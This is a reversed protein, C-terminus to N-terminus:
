RNSDLILWSLPYGPLLPFGFLLTSKTYNHDQCPTHSISTVFQWMIINSSHALIFGLFSVAQQRLPTETDCQRPSGHDGPPYSCDVFDTGVVYNYHATHTLTTARLSCTGSPTVVSVDDRGRECYRNTSALDSSENLVSNVQRCSVSLEPENQTEERHMVTLVTSLLRQVFLWPALFSPYYWSPWLRLVSKNDAQCAHIVM